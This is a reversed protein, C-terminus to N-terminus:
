EMVLECPHGGDAQQPLCAIAGSAMETADYMISYRSRWAGLQDEVGASSLAADAGEAGVHVFAVTLPACALRVRDHPM